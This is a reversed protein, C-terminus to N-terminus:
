KRVAGRLVPRNLLHELKFTTLDFDANIAANKEQYQKATLGSNGCYPKMITKPLSAPIRERYRGSFKSEFLSVTKLVGSIKDKPYNKMVYAVVCTWECFHSHVDCVDEGSEITPNEPVFKPYSTPTLDCEWCKRNSFLKMWETASVFKTPLETYVTQASEVPKTVANADYISDLRTFDKLTLGCLVLLNSRSPLSMIHIYQIYQIYHIYVTHTSQYFAASEFHLYVFYRICIITQTFKLVNIPDYASQYKNM